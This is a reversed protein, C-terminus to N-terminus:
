DRTLFSLFLDFHKSDDSAEHMRKAAFERAIWSDLKTLLTVMLNALGASGVTLGSGWVALTDNSPGAGFKALIGGLVFSLNCLM